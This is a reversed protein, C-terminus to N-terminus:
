LTAINFGIEINTTDRGREMTSELRWFVTIDQFWYPKLKNINILIPNPDFKDIIVLLTINNLLCYKIKYPGFWNQKFMCTHEKHAKPFWLMHDGLTFSKTWYHNHAWLAHNWQWKSTTEVVLTQSEEFKELEFLWTSLVRTMTFDQSMAFNTIPLLYKTPM